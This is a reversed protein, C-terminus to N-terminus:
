APETTVLALRDLAADLDRARQMVQANSAALQEETPNPPGIRVSLDTQLASGLEAAVARAERVRQQRQPSPASSELAAFTADLGQVQRQATPEMDPRVAVRGGGLQDVILKGERVARGTSESWARQSGRRRRQRAALAAV